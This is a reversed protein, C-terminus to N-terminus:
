LMRYVYLEENPDEQVLDWDPFIYKRSIVRANTPLERELKDVLKMNTDRLLYATVVTAAGLDVTFFDRRIVVVRSNLGKVRIQVKTWLYRFPDIEIGM